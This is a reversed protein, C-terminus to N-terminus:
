DKKGSQIENRLKERSKLRKIQVFRLLFIVVLSIGIVLAYQTYDPDPKSGPWGVVSMVLLYIVLAGTTINIKKM